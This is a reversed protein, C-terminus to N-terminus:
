LRDSLGRGGGGRTPTPICLAPERGGTPLVPSHRQEHPSPCHPPGVLLGAPSQRQIQQARETVSPAPTFTSRGVGPTFTSPGHEARLARQRGGQGAAADWAQKGSAARSSPCSFLDVTLDCLIQTQPEALSPDTGRSTAKSLDEQGAGKGPSQTEACELSPQEWGHSAGETDTVIDTRMHSQTSSKSSNGTVPSKPPLPRHVCGGVKLGLAGSIM